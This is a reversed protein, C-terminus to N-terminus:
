VKEESVRVDLKEDSPIYAVLFTFVEIYLVAIYSPSILLCYKGFCLFPGEYGFLYNLASGIFPGFSAGVAGSVEMISM